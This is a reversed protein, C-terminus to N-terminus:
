AREIWIKGFSGSQKACLVGQKVLELLAIFLSVFEMRSVYLPILDALAAGQANALRGLIRDRCMEYPFLDQRLSPSLASRVIRPTEEAITLRQRLKLWASILNEATLNSINIDADNVALDEPLKTFGLAARSESERLASAAEKMKKHMELQRVLMEEPSLEEEDELRPPLPLLSRSKIFLLLAAMELFASANDFSEAGGMSALYQETIDSVFIEKIDIKAEHILHLLLDLPGEFTPLSFSFPLSATM